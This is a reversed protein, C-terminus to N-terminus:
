PSAIMASPIASAGSLRVSKTTTAMAARAAAHTEPAHHRARQAKRRDARNAARDGHRGVIRRRDALRHDLQEIGDAPLIRQAVVLDDALYSIRHRLTEDREQASLRQREGRLLQAIDSGHAQVLQEASLAPVSTSLVFVLYDEDLFSSRPADLYAAVRSVVRRCVLEAHQQLPENEILHQGLALLDQWSGSFPRELLLSIVGYDYFKIRVRFGDLEAEGLVSGDVIVPPQIYRVRPAGPAKDYITALTADGGLHRHLADLRTTEAVDFSYYANISGALEAM